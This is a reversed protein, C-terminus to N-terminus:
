PIRDISARGSAIDFEVLHSEGVIDRYRVLLKTAAKLTQTQEANMRWIVGDPFIQAAPGADRTKYRTQRLNFGPLADFRMDPMDRIRRWKPVFFALQTDGNPNKNIILSHENDLLCSAGKFAKDTIPDNHESYEWCAYAPLCLLGACLAIAGSFRSKNTM